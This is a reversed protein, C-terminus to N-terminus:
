AASLAYSDKLGIVPISTYERKSLYNILDQKKERIQELLKENISDGPFKVSLRGDVLRIYINNERLLAFFTEM